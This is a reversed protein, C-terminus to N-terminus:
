GEAAPQPIEKAATVAQEVCKYDENHDVKDGARHASHHILGQGTFDTKLPDKTFDYDEHQHANAVDNVHM